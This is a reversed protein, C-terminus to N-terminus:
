APYAGILAVIMELLLISVLNAASAKPADNLVRMEGDWGRASLGTELRRARDLTRPLLNAALLGTSRLWRRRTARGLRAEQAHSMGLAVDAIIFVFRHTLLAIDVIDRPLGLRRLGVLTDTLPTTLILFLLCALASFSRLALLTADQLGASSFQVGDPGISVLLTAAGTLLFGLPAAATSLWIGLPVRAGIFTFGLMVAAVVVGGPLPPLAVALVLMGLALAAKEGLPRKRWANLYAARDIASIAM